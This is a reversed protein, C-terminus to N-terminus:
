KDSHILYYGTGSKNLIVHSNAGDDNLKQRLRHIYAKLNDSIDTSNSKWVFEAFESITVVNGQAAILKYIIRAEINTLPIRRGSYVLDRITEGFHLPGYSITIDEKEPKSRRILAKVRALLEFEKFPKSVYDDIGLAFGRVIDREEGRVSLILIPVSSFKRIKKIIEFGNIDPLGLDLIVIDPNIDNVLEVGQNGLHTSRVKAEPWGVMFITGIYDIINQDDEIILIKV